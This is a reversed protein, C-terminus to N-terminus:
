DSNRRRFPISPGVDFNGLHWQDCPRQPDQAAEEESLYDWTQRGEKVRLRWRSYDTVPPIMATYNRAAHDRRARARLSGAFWGRINGFVNSIALARIMMRRILFITRLQARRWRARSRPRM